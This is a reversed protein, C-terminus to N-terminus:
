LNDRLGVCVQDVLTASGGGRGEIGQDVINESKDSVEAKGVGFWSGRAYYQDYPQFHFFFHCDIISM